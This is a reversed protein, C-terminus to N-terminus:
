EPSPFNGADLAAAGDRILVRVNNEAPMAQQVKKASAMGRELMVRAEARRGRALYMEGRRIDVDALQYDAQLDAGLASIERLASAAGVFLIEAENFAGTKALGKALGVDNMTAMLRAQVDNPDRTAMVAGAKRNQEIARSYEGNSYYLDAFNLRTQALSWQYSADGPKLAILAEDAAVAKQLLIASRTYAERLSLGRSGIVASNNYVASLASLGREDKPHARSYEEGVVVMKDLSNRAEPMRGLAGLTEAEISYANGLLAMREFEDTLVPNLSEALATAKRAIPLAAAPGTMFTTRRAQQFYTKALSTGIRSNKPDRQHLPEFLAVAKAYSRMSGATDGVNAAEVSGQIDGVKKYALGLEEQLERDTGSEQYLADLYELSTTVLMERAKTSGPLRAIEDHFVFLRNALKRVSDFHRQATIRQVEAVRAEHIAIGLGAVLSALVVTAAAIEIKRRRVFKGFRYSFANGRAHVPLGSLYNRLDTAFQEVSSYRRQPEKRLAMLLINDLDSDLPRVLSPRTPTTESLIAAIRQADTSMAAYPSRGTLLRYLVVGLAYVDSVTTVSGGSVQEPSAYDLTMARMQTRTEDGTGETAPDTSLLKAIGFDLLKVSGDVTVFINGPKLDRHVILHQHAYSVAACVQLFLSVRDRTALNQADCYRDIPEGNVLEMVVYPVNAGTTGGDLLRAINRHDLAALIQRETKFRQKILGGSLDARMFKIAVEAHYQDDARVAKFVDGMGGTGLVGVIRYAGIREGIRSSAGSPSAVAEARVQPAVPELFEGPQDHADLLSRVEALLSPDDHTERALFEARSDAPLESAAAFLTKIRSWRDPTVIDRARPSALRPGLGM